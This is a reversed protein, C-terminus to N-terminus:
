KRFMSIISLGYKWYSNMFNHAKKSITLRSKIYAIKHTDTLYWVNNIHMLQIFLQEWADLKDIDSNYDPIDPLKESINDPKGSTSPAPAPTAQILNKSRMAIVEPSITPNGVKYPIPPPIKHSNSHATVHDLHDLFAGPNEALHQSIHALKAVEEPTLTRGSDEMELNEEIDEM